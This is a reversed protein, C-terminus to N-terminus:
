IYTNLIEQIRQNDEFFDVKLYEKIHNFTEEIPQNITQFIHRTLYGLDDTNIGQLTCSQLFQLKKDM